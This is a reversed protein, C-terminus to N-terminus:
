RGAARAIRLIRRIEDLFRDDGATLDDWTVHIVRWGLATLANGRALDHKWRARRGHWRFGDAEIAVRERPYAFDVVAVVRGGDRVRFQPVPEPLGADRLARLLRTELVSEPIATTPDRQELLARMVATGARGRRGLDDLRARLRALTTLHRRLADDLAEEVLHPPAVGALDILTRTASTVPIGDIRTVDGTPMAGTRHVFQGVVSAKATTPVSVEIIAGELDWLGWLAAASRHSAVARGLSLCAAMLSGRWTAPTGTLRYVSRHIREWRGSALRGHIVRPTAGAALAQARSFVGHQSRTV